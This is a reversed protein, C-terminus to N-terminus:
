TRKGGQERGLQSATYHKVLIVRLVQEGSMGERGCRASIHRDQNRVRDDHVWTAAEPHEDLIRSIGKFSVLISM